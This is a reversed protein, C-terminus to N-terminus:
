GRNLSDRWTMYAMGVREAAKRTNWKSQGNWVVDIGDVRVYFHKAGPWQSITVREMEPWTDAEVKKIVEVLEPYMGGNKNVYFGKRNTFGVDVEMAIQMSAIAAIVSAEGRHPDRCFRVYNDRLITAVMDQEKRGSLILYWAPEVLKHARGFVFTSM